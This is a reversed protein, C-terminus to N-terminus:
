STAGVTTIFQIISSDTHKKKLTKIFRLMVKEIWKSNAYMQPNSIFNKIIEDKINLNKFLLEIIRLKKYPSKIQNINLFCNPSLHNDFKIEIKIDFKTMIALLHSIYMKDPAIDLYENRYCSKLVRLEKLIKFDFENITDNQLLESILEVYSFKYKKDLASKYILYNRFNVYINDCLWFYSITNNPLIKIFDFFVKTKELEINYSKSENFSELITRLKNKHDKEIFGENLLHKVFLYGHSSLYELKDYTYFSITWGDNSYLQELAKFNMFNDTVILLDKDSYKDSNDRVISGYKLVSYNM